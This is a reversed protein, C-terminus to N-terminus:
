VSKNTDATKIQLTFGLLSFVPSYKSNIGRDTLLLAKVM